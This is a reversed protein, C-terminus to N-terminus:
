RIEQRENEQEKRLIYVTLKHAQQRCWEKAEGLFASLHILGYAVPILIRRRLSKHRM